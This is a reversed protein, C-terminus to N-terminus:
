RRLRSFETKLKQITSAPLAPPVLGEPLHYRLLDLAKALTGTESNKDFTLKGGTDAAAGLLGFVLERLIQDKVSRSVSKLYRPVTSPRGVATNLLTSLNLITTELDRIEGDGFQMQGHKVNEVWDRDKEKMRFINRQLVRTADAAYVLALGPKTGSPRRDRDWVRLVTASIRECFKDQYDAPVKAMKAIRVALPRLRTPTPHTPPNSM